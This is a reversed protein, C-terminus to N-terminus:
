IEINCFLDHRLHILSYKLLRGLVRNKEEPFPYDSSSMTQM